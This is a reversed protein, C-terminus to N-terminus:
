SGALRRDVKTEDISYIRIGGDDERTFKQELNFYGAANSTNFVFDTVVPGLNFIGQTYWRYPLVDVVSIYGINL